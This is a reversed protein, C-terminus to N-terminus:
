ESSDLRKPTVDIIRQRAAQLREVLDVQGTLELRDQFMGLHRGIKDLAGLKDVMKVRLSGGDKTTTEGVEAVAAAEDDTLESSPKLKVGNPGWEMVSRPDSFAIRALEQLVREPTVGSKEIARKRLEDIRSRVNVDTLLRSAAVASSRGPAYGARTAAQLGNNDILYERCFQERRENTLKPV